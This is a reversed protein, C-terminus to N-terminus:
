LSVALTVHKVEVVGDRWGLRGAGIGEHYGRHDAPLFVSHAKLGGDYSSCAIGALIVTVHSEVM